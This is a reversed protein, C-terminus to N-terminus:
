QTESADDSRYRWVRDWSNNGLHILNPNDESNFTVSPNTNSAPTLLYRVGPPRHYNVLLEAQPQGEKNPALYTPILATLDKPYSGHEIRYQELACAIKAQQITVDSRPLGVDFELSLAKLKQVIFLTNIPDTPRIIRQEPACEPFFWQYALVQSQYTWGKPHIQWLLGVWFLAGRDRQLLAKYNTMLSHLSYANDLENWLDMQLLATSMRLRESEVTLDIKELDANIQSLQAGTWAQANLGEWLPQFLIFLWGLRRLQTHISPERRVTDILRMGLYLDSAAANTEGLALHASSRLALVSVLNELVSDREAGLAEVMFGRSYDLNWRSKPRSQAAILLENFLEAHPELHALVHKPASGAFHSQDTNKSHRNFLVNWFDFDTTRNSYWPIKLRPPRDPLIITRLRDLEESPALERFDGLILNANENGQILSALLPIACFNNDDAVLPPALSAVDLSGRSLEVADVLKAYAWKGRWLEISYFLAVLSFWTALSWGYFSTAQRWSLFKWGYRWVFRIRLILTTIIPTLIVAGYFANLWHLYSLLFALLIWTGVFVIPVLKRLGSFLTDINPLHQSPKM